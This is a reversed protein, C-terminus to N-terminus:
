ANLASKARQHDSLTMINRGTNRAIYYSQRCDSLIMVMIVMAISRFFIKYIRM